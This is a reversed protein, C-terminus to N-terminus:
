FGMERLRREERIIRGSVSQKTVGRRAAVEGNTVNGSRVNLFLPSAVDYLKALDVYHEQNPPISPPVVCDISARKSEQWGHRKSSVLAIMQWHLFGFVAGDERFNDRKDLASVITDIALNYRDERTKCWKRARVMLGPLYDWVKEDFSKEVKRRVLRTRM